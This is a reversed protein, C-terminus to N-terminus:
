LKVKFSRRHIECYGYKIIAEIHARTPYGKHRDFGYDPYQLHYSRMLSDRHVKALISAACVCFCKQDGKVIAQQSINSSPLEWCGDILMFDPIPALKEAARRMALLSAQLINHRDIEQVSAEGIAWTLAQEKIVQSISERRAPNLRKSDNIGPIVTEESFIVAAAVVPGALPGRGVEDIGAVRVFGEKWLNRETTFLSGIRQLEASDSARSNLRGSRNAM